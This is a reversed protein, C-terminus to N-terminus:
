ERGAAFGCDSLGRQGMRCRLGLLACQGVAPCRVERVVPDQLLAQTQADMGGEGAAASGGAAEPHPEVFSNHHQASDAAGAALQGAHLPGVAAPLTESYAVATEIQM